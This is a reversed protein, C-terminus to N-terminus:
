TYQYFVSLCPVPCAPLCAPLCAPIQETQEIQQECAAVNASWATIMAKVDAVSMGM